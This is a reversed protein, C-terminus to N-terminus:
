HKSFLYFDASVGLLIISDRLVPIKALKNSPLILGNWCDMSSRSFFCFSEGKKFRVKFNSRTFKWNMTFVVLMWYTEIVASLAQIGDKFENVPGSVWLDYGPCTTIIVGVNFTLIGSGFHSEVFTKIKKTGLFSNEGEPIHNSYGRYCLRREM